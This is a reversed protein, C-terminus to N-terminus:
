YQHAGGTAAVLLVSGIILPWPTRGPTQTAVPQPEHSRAMSGSAVPTLTMDGLGTRVVRPADERTLEMDGRGTRAVRSVDPGNAQAVAPGGLALALLATAIFRISIPM